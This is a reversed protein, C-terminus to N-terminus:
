EKTVIFEKTKKDFEVAIKEMKDRHNNLAKETLNYSLRSLNLEEDLVWEM